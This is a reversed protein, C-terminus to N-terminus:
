RRVKMTTDARIFPESADDEALALGGACTRRVSWEPLAPVGYDTPDGYQYAIVWSRTHM